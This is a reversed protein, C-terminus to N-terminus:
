NKATDYNFETGQEPIGKAIDGITTFAESHTKLLSYLVGSLCLYTVDLIDMFGFFTM